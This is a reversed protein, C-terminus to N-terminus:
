KLKKLDELFKNDFKERPNKIYKMRDLENNIHQYSIHLSKKIDGTKYGLKNLTYIKNNMQKYKNNIKNIITKPINTTM